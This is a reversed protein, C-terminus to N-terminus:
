RCRSIDPDVQIRTIISDVFKSGAENGVVFTWPSGSFNTAAVATSECTGNVCNTRTVGDARTLLRAVGSGPMALTGFFSGAPYHFNTFTGTYVGEYVNQLLWPAAQATGTTRQVSLAVCASNTTIGFTSPGFSPAEASRTVTAAVTPIISTRYSGPEVQCGGFTVTGTVSAVNGVDVEAVIAVGSSSADTVEVISWTTSSLGTITAATGDLVIRASSATGARVYCHMTYATAATVTATQSRGEFAAGDNDDFLVASNQYTGSFPSTQSGTLTPTGVDSWLANAFDIFRFLSNTRSSEVRLGLVGAADREVRVVNNTLEVLSGTAIGSTALGDPTCTAPSARTFTLTEGKAGTPATTSCAGFTGAGSAPFAEFFALDDQGLRSTRVPGESRFIRPRITPQRPVVQARVKTVDGLIESSTFHDAAPLVPEEVELTTVPPPVPVPTGTVVPRKTVTVCGCLALACVIASIRNV